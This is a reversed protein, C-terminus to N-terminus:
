LILDIRGAFVHLGNVVDAPIAADVRNADQGNREVVLGDKNADVEEVIELTELKKLTDFLVTRVRPLMRTYLKSRGFRLAVATRCAKRVYDLTRITTIDLLSVDPVGAANLTYTSIARVIQVKEGPGVELPTVGNALCSEQETRSLRDALAPAAIGKLELTNLPMAPDEEFAIVAGYAAAVEYPLSITNRLLALTVRGDNLTGALTTSTALAGAQAIVGIGPRQEVSGSVFALHATLDALNDADNYPSIIVDFQEGVVTDLATKVDPDTAGAAMPVVVATIGTATYSTSVKIDNGLTGFHRATLTIVNAVVGATVPLDDYKALETNLAAAIANQADTNAIAITITRNGVKVTLTGASTAPGTITITGTAKVGAADALAVCTLDLYANARLAARTMLHLISGSGFYLAADADSFVATPTLAAVSGAALKQGVILCRQKNGPLSRVALATNFELYAGPKRISTPITTM